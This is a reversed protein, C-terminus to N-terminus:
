KNKWKGVVEDVNKKIQKNLKIYEGITLKKNKWVEIKIKDDLKRPIIHFHTHLIYQGASRGNNLLVNYGEHSLM